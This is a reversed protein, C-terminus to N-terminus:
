FDLHYNLSVKALFRQDNCNKTNNKCLLHKNISNRSRFSAPLTLKTITTCWFTFFTHALHVKLLSPFTFARREQRLTDLGFGRTAALALCYNEIGLLTKGCQWCVVPHCTQRLQCGDRGDSGTPPHSFLATVAAPFLKNHKQFSDESQSQGRLVTNTRMQLSCRSLIGQRTLICM